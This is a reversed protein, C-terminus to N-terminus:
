VEVPQSNSETPTKAPAHSWWANWKAKASSGLMYARFRWESSFRKAIIRPRLCPTPECRLHRKYQEDGRLFNVGRVKNEMCWLIISTNMINGPELKNYEPDNGVQYVYLVGSPGLYGLSTAIVKDEFELNFLKTLGSNIGAAAFNHVFQKFIPDIFCGLRGISQNRRQHLDVFREFDREFNEPTSLRVSVQKTDLNKEKILRLKRRYQKSLMPLYDAFSEPIKLEWTSCVGTEANEFGENQFCLIFEQTLEDTPSSGELDLEDWAFEGRDHNVVGAQLSDFVVKAIEKSNSNLSIIGVFDTCVSGSGVWALVNGRSVTKRVALPVIAVVTESADRVVGIFVSHPAQMTALWNASWEWSRFPNGNALRNWDAQLDLALQKQELWDIRM